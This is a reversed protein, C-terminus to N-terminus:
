DEVRWAWNVVVFDDICNKETIKPIKHVKIMQECWYDWYNNLIEEETLEIFGNELDGAVYGDIRYTVM